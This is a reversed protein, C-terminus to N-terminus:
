RESFVLRNDFPDKVDLETTGWPTTELGPRAYSYARGSLEQHFAAIGEMEIRVAGGPTCDGHHESLHLRIGDRSLQMYLPMGEEFRHEWDLRFGLYDMYFQKALREDFMRLIPVVTQLEM